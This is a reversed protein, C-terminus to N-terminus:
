PLGVLNPSLWPNGGAAGMGLSSYFSVDGYRQGRACGVTGRCGTAPLPARTLDRRDDGARDVAVALPPHHQVDADVAPFIQNLARIWNSIRAWLKLFRTKRAGNSGITGFLYVRRNRGRPATLEGM